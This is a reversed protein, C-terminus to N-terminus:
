LPRAMKCSTPMEAQAASIAKVVRFGYGSGEVDFKVGPSGQRDMVGVVLAQQFQHDSGRMAGSQGFLNVSVRELQAAVAVRDTTGAREIAQVLAEVMLQMRMHVYDDAPRPYRQRFAQYFADSQATQVNPLWDAVAIVKGIGADGIAAPAGLANGYYTYFKGEYGVDKAAKVLLTLDNGWNGTIVAQAGTAKIKAVYPLFDKVRGMPHLEDGVIQVDPRQVGLQRRAERLVAQGFSYDQGILYVSRVSADDKLVQMLAAMRMDAHADFRFHWFSCKENTLVPDVASYNLYVVRRAPERENHKNIADLLAAANASSNGQLVYQAGDDLASRLTSLAEENQGKSDFREIVLPRNGGASAPLKVGGRANVREVAWLLNRFVAEGTNAFPGSLGEIMALKIPAAPAQTPAPATATATSPAQAFAAFASVSLAVSLSKLLRGHLYKM